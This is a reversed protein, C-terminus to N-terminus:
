QGGSQTEALCTQCPKVSPTIICPCAAWWYCGAAQCVSCLRKDIRHLESSFIVVTLCVGLQLGEHTRFLLFKSSSFM